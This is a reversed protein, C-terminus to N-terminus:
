WTIYSAVIQAAIFALWLHQSRRMKKQLESFETDPLLWKGCNHNWIAIGACYLTSIMFPSFALSKNLTQLEDIQWRMLMQLLWCGIALGLAPYQAARLNNAWSQAQAVATEYVASDLAELEDIERECYRCRVAGWLLTERCRPCKFVILASPATLQYQPFLKSLVGPSQMQLLSVLRFRPLAVTIPPADSCPADAKYEFVATDHSVRVRSFSVTQADERHMCVAFPGTEPTHSRHFERLFAPTLENKATLEQFQARRAAIVEPARYSSSSLPMCADADAEWWLKEGNWHAISTQRPTLTLLTFPPLRTLAENALKEAVAADDYCTLLDRALWGRSDYERARDFPDQYRNLVGIALGYENVGL